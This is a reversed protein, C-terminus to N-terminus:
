ADEDEAIYAACLRDVDVYVRALLSPEERLCDILREYGELARAPVTLTEHHYSGGDVFLLKVRRLDAEGGKPIPRGRAEPEGGQADPPVQDRSEGGKADPQGQRPAAARRPV